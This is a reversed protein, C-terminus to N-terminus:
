RNKSSRRNAPQETAPEKLAVAEDYTPPLSQTAVDYPPPLSVISSLSSREFIIAQSQNADQSVIKTFSTVIM